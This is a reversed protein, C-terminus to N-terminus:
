KKGMHQLGYIASPILAGLLIGGIIYKPYIRRAIKSGMRFSMLVPDVPLGIARLFRGFQRVGEIEKEMRYVGLRYGTLGGFASLPLLHWYSFEKQQAAIKELYVKTSFNNM